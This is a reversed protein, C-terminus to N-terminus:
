EATQATKRFVDTQDCRKKNFFDETFPEGGINSYLELLGVVIQDIIVEKVKSSVVTGQTDGGKRESLPKNVM